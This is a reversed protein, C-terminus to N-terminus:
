HDRNVIYNMLHKLFATNRPVKELAEIALCYHEWMAKKAGDEGLITVFTSAHNAADKGVPKGILSQEGEIDLLDDKIQFAIGAHRAFAKLAEMENEDVEALIAPMILSAEFAIGTKYFCMENLQELTLLKGKAYLDMAQGRCMDGVTHSSYRILKLVTEPAFGQLESQEEVAKQTLFLGTLEAIAPNYVKHLTPRGRRFSANDQAPLDDFVLSATHMYELSKLLPVIASENLGYEDIGMVWTMIPRLRKGDGELSYNAADIIPEELLAEADIPDIKLMHNIRARVTKIKEFFQEQETSERQLITIMEDRLLKDFFEVDVAKNVMSQILHEFSPNGSFFIEMVEHYKGSGHRAKFRKLGNIARDLIVECVMSDSQYVQHILFSIVSWYLEFPNILDPREQHYTLYYTYPTVAGAELDAFMDTFDDALQNYIGYAFTREEFGSDEPASLVSRAILRSASSKLIIPVYLEANSYNPNALQKNRDVEQAQFFVFAQEFFSDRLEENQHAKIYEFASKLESHIFGLIDPNLGPWETLSPVTRTIIAERILSSYQQKEYENLVKSDLLDDIFPYTLGYAYGLQIAENLKKTREDASLQHDMEEIAHMYVGGIIKMLKRQANVGDLGEPMEEAVTKLKGMLWIFAKEVGDQQAKRYLSVMNFPEQIYRNESTPSQTLQKKLKSAVQRVRLQTDPSSLAKGLDRMYLYAISRELYADLKGTFNLWQIYHQYDRPSAEKKRKSFYSLLSSTRLHNQKWSHIDKTLAPVYSKEQVQSILLQLYHAAKQEAVTYGTETKNILEDIM